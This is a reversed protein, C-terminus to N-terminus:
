RGEGNARGRREAELIAQARAELEAAEQRARLVSQRQQDSLTDLYLQDRIEQLRRREREDAERQRQRAEAEQAWRRQDWTSLTQYICVAMGTVLVGSLVIFLLMMVKAKLSLPTPDTLPRNLDPALNTLWPDSFLYLSVLCAALLVAATAYRQTTTM